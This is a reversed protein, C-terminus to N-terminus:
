TNLQKTKILRNMIASCRYLFILIGGLLIGCGLLAAFMFPKISIIVDTFKVRYDYYNAGQIFGGALYSLSFILAGILVLYFQFSLKGSKSFQPLIAEACGMLVFMTACLVLIYDRGASYLTFEVIQNVETNMSALGTLIYTGWFIIALYLYRLGVNSSKQNKVTFFLNIFVALFPIIMFLHFMNNVEIVWRPLPMSLSLGGFGGFIAIGFFACLALRRSYLEVGLIMPAFYFLSGIIGCGIIVNCALNKFWNHFLIQGAGEIPFRAFFIQSLAILLLLGFFLIIWFWNSPHLREVASNNLILALQTTFLLSALFLITGSYYPLEFWEYGTTDGALAAIVGVVVGINWLILSGYMLAGGRLNVKNSVACSYIAIIMLAQFAFGFLLATSSAAILRGYSTAVFDMALEPFILEFLALGILATAIFLWLATNVIQFTVWWRLSNFIEDVSVEEKLQWKKPPTEKKSEKKKSPNM